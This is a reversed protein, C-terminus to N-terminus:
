KKFHRKEYHSIEKIRRIHRKENKFKTNIWIKIGKKANKLTVFESGLSLVNTDDHIRSMQLFKKNKRGTFSVARIGKVKNAAISEGIGTRAIIIGRSNKTKSVKEAVLFTYPPHDDKPNYEYPGVDYVSHKEKKLWKKIKEKYIFGAHDSGIIIKM